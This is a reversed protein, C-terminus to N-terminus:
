SAKGAKALKAAWQTQPYVSGLVQGAQRAREPQNTADWLEVLNYLAEAHAEPVGNFVLDVTLFSIIANEKNGGEARQCTGLATYALALLNKDDPPAGRIVEQVVDAGDAAKGSLGLCRARGLTAELKQRSSAPDSPDTPIKEAATFERIAEAYKKQRMLLGARASASRVRMAPPGRDLTRYAEDAGAFNGQRARVDGLIESAFYLHHTRSNKQLFELLQKEWAGVNADTAALTNSAIRVFDYEERVRPDLIQLDEEQIKAIEEAAGAGDRRYLLRRAGRLTELEGDLSLDQLDVINVKRIKGGREEIDIGDPSVSVLTGRLTAGDRTLVSDEGLATFQVALLAVMAAALRGVGGGSLKQVLRSM